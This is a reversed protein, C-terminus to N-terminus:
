EGDSLRSIPYDPFNDNWSNINFVICESAIPRIWPSGSPGSLPLMSKLRDTRAVLDPETLTDVAMLVLYIIPKGARGSAWEYLFSDRYKRVLAIDRSGSRSPDLSRGPARGQGSPHQPDKFEVFLYSDAREVVFDVAQMCHSLGHDGGDFKRAAVVNRFEVRLDGETFTTM